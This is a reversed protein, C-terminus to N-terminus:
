IPLVSPLSSPPGSRFGPESVPDLFFFLRNSRDLAKAAFSLHNEDTGRLTKYSATRGTRIDRHVTTGLVGIPWEVPQINRSLSRVAGCCSSKRILLGSPRM